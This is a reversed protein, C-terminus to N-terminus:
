HSPANTKADTKADSNVASAAATPTPSAFSMLGGNADSYSYKALPNPEGLDIIPRDRM